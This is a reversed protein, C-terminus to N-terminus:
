YKIGSSGSNSNSTSNPTVVIITGTIKPNVASHFPYSGSQNFTYSYSMGNTLNGSSFVGTSSVINQTTNAKNIWTVTSGVQVNLISPTFSSNNILITNSSQSACGSVAVAGLVILVGLALFKKNMM